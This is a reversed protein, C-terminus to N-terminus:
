EEYRKIESDIPQDYFNKGNIIVNYNKNIGYTLYYRLTKYRKKIQTFWFWCDTFGLLTQNLFIDKSM